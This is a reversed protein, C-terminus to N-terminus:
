STSLHDPIIEGDLIRLKIVTDFGKKDHLTFKVPQLSCSAIM